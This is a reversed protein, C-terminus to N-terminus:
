FSRRPKAKKVPRVPKVKKRGGRSDWEEEDEENEGEDSTETEGEVPLENNTPTQSMPSAEDLIINPIEDEEVVDEQQLEEESAEVVDEDEDEEDEDEEVVRATAAVTRTEKYSDATSNRGNKRAPIPTPEPLDAEGAEDEPRPGGIVRRGAAIDLWFQSYYHPRDVDKESDKRTM